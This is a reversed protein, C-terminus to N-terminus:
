KAIGWCSSRGRSLACLERSGGAAVVPGPSPLPRRLHSQKSADLGVGLERKRVRFVVRSFALFKRPKELQPRITTTWLKQLFLSRFRWKSASFPKWRAFGDVAKRFALVGLIAGCVGSRAGVLYPPYRPWGRRSLTGKRSCPPPFCGPISVVSSRVLHGIEIASRKPSSFRGPISVRPRNAMELAPVALRRHM